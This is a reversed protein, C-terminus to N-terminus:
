SRDCEVIKMPDASLHPASALLPPGFNRSLQLSLLAAAAFIADLLEEEGVFHLSGLVSILSSPEM